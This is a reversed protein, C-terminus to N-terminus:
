REVKELLARLKETDAAYDGHDALYRRLEELLDLIPHAKHMLKAELQKRYTEMELWDAMMLDIQSHFPAKSKSM